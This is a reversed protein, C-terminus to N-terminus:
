LHRDFYDAIHEYLHIRDRGRVNHPHSPYPFFDVHQRKKIAAEMFNMAHAPLVVDDQLGHIILLRKGALKDVYNSLNSAAFGEENEDIRDMYREGYMIEYMRWDTVPGGAVGVTFLDPKKLLMSMTMFGGYSWGHVGIRSGDVYPLKKLYAAGVAQDEVEVSGMQRFLAQEFDRGRGDSGRSDLTFVVYGQQALYYLFLNANHLWSNRILQLHPGGYVYIIAPYKKAANFNGPKIIRGYLTTGDDAQLTLVEASPLAYNALPNDATHLTHVATGKRTELLIIENPLDHRSYEDILYSGNPHLRGTHVGEASGVRTMEGDKLRIQYHTRDLPSDKTGTIYLYQERADMGLVETVIWSGETLQQLQIGDTNYLYLHNFGDCESQWLFLDKDKFLFAPGHEPEVYKPDTETFLTKMFVGGAADYQQLQMTDQGRNLRAVYLFNGDPSFTLNTLYQDYPEGSELYVTKGTTVDFLGVTTFQSSDGNMPYNVLTTTPPITSYDTLPYDTVMRQDIRYFALRRGDPSWFQGETVGFENRYAAVGYEIERSGDRSIRVPADLGKGAYLDHELVYSYSYADTYHLEAAGTPVVIRPRLSDHGATYSWVYGGYVLSVTKATHWRLAPMYRMPQLSDPLYSNLKDLSLYVTSSFKKTETIMVSDGDNVYTYADADPVWQLQRLSTPYLDRRLIIDELTLTQQQATLSLTAIYLLLTLLKQMAYIIEELDLLNEQVVLLGLPSM